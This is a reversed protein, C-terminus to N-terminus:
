NIATFWAPSSTRNPVLLNTYVALSLLRPDSDDDRSLEAPPKDAHGACPVATSVNGCLVYPSHPVHRMLHTTNDYQQVWLAITVRAGLQHHPDLLRVDWDFRLSALDVSGAIRGVSKSLTTELRVEEALPEDGYMDFYAAVRHRHQAGAYRTMFSTITLFGAQTEAWYNNQTIVIGIAVLSVIFLVLCITVWARTSCASTSTPTGVHIVQPPPPPPPAAVASPAAWRARLADFYSLFRGKSAEPEEDFSFLLPNIDSDAPTSTM